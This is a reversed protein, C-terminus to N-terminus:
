EKKVSLAPAVQNAVRDYIVQRLREAIASFVDFQPDDLDGTVRFEFEFPENTSQLDNFFRAITEPALGFVLPPKGQVREKTQFKLGEIRIQHYIDVQNEHCLAKVKLQFTGETFRFPFDPIFGGWQSFALGKASATVDFSKKPVFINLRGLILIKGEQAGPVAANVYIGIPLAEEPDPPYVIRALSFFVSKLVGNRETQRRDILQVTGNRIVFKELMYRAALSALRPKEKVLKQLRGAIRGVFLPVNFQGQENVEFALHPDKFLIRSISFENTLFSLLNLDVAITRASLLDPEQFGQANKIRAGKIWFSGAFLNTGAHDISVPVQLIYRLERELIPKLFFSSAIQAAILLAVVGLVLIFLIRRLFRM